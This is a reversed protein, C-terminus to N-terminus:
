GSSSLPSGTTRHRTVTFGLAKLESELLTSMEAMGVEDDTGTEINVLRELTKITAPKEATASALLEADTAQAPSYALTLAVAITGFLSSKNM